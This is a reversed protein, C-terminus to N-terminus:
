NPAPAGLKPHSTCNVWGHYKLSHTSSKLLSKPLSNSLGVRTPQPDPALASGVSVSPKSSTGRVISWWAPHLGCMANRPDHVITRDWGPKLDVVPAICWKTNAWIMKVQTCLTFICAVCNPSSVVDFVSESNCFQSIVCDPLDSLPICRPVDHLLIKGLLISDGLCDHAHDEGAFGPLVHSPFPAIAGKGDANEYHNSCTISRRPDSGKRNGEAKASPHTTETGSVEGHRWPSRVMDEGTSPHEAHPRQPTLDKSRSGQQNGACTPNDSGNFALVAQNM